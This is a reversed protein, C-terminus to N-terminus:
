AKAMARLALKAAARKALAKRQGFGYFTRTKGTSKERVEVPVMVMDESEPVGKDSGTKIESKVIQAPLFLVQADSELLERVPQKPVNKSFADIEKKMIPYFVKWVTSVSLGSDLFIAGALSEVIDGLAKPVEVYESLKCEEEYMLTLCEETVDHNRQVQFDVFSDIVDMLNRSLHLLHRHLGHRVALSAFTINNVLASRLDTLQGPNLKGCTEYIHCTIVYDLVADGLFELRQYCETIHNLNFSAHTFAQLLLLRNNFKYNILKEIAPAGPLLSDVSNLNWTEGKLESTPLTFIKSSPLSSGSCIRREKQLGKLYKSIRWNDDELVRGENESVNKEHLKQNITALTPSLKIRKCRSPSQNLDDKEENSNSSIWIDNESSSELLPDFSDFEDEYVEHRSSDSSKEDSDDWVFDVSNEEM